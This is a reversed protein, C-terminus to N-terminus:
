LFSFFLFQAPPFYFWPWTCFPIEKERKAKVLGPWKMKQSTDLFYDGPRATFIHIMCFTAIAGMESYGGEKKKGKVICPGPLLQYFTGGKSGVALVPHTYPLLLLLKARADLLLRSHLWRPGKRKRRRKKWDSRLLEQGSLFFFSPLIM